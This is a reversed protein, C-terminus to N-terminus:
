GFILLLCPITLASGVTEVTIIESMLEKNGGLQSALLAFSFQAVRAAGERMTALLCITTTSFGIGDLYVVYFSYEVALWSAAGLLLILMAMRMSRNDRGLMLARRRSHFLNDRFSSNEM